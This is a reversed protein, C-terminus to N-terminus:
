ASTECLGDREHSYETALTRPTESTMPAVSIAMASRTTMRGQDGASAATPLRPATPINATVSLKRTVVGPTQTATGPNGTGTGFSNPPKRTM